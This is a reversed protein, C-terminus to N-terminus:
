STIIETFWNDWLSQFTTDVDINPEENKVTWEYPENACVKVACGLLEAAYDEHKSQPITVLVNKPLLLDEGNSDAAGLGTCELVKFYAEKLNAENLVMAM